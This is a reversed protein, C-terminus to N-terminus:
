SQILVSLLSIWNSLFCTKFFSTKASNITKSCLKYLSLELIHLNSSNEYKSAIAEIKSLKQVNHFYDSHLIIKGPTYSSPIDIDKRLQTGNTGLIHLSFLEFVTESLTAIASFMKLLSKNDNATNCMTPFAKQWNKIQLLELSNRKSHHYKNNNNKKQQQLTRAERAMRKSSRCTQNSNRNLIISECVIIPNNFNSNSEVQRTALNEQYQKKTVKKYAEVQSKFSRAVEVEDM